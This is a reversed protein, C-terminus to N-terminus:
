ISRVDLQRMRPIEFGPDAALVEDVYSAAKKM